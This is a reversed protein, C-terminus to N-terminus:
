VSSHFVERQRAPSLAVASSIERPLELLEEDEFIEETFEWKTPSAFLLKLTAALEDRCLNVLRSILDRLGNGRERPQAFFRLGDVIITLVVNRGLSVVLSEFMSFISEMNGPKLRDYCLRLVAPDLIRHGRDILQLLLSMALEEPSGNDDEQWDRHQSCFFALPIFFTSVDDKVHTARHHQLLQHFVKALFLSTESDPRPEARGNLILLSPEDVTLWARLRSSSQLVALRSPDLSLRRARDAKSNLSACDNEVLKEDYLFHALIHAPDVDSLTKQPQNNLNGIARDQLAGFINNLLPSINELVDVRSLKEEITGLRKDISAQASAHTYMAWYQLQVTQQGDDRALKSLRTEFSQSAMKLEAQYERLKETFGMPDAFIKVGTIWSNKLFWHLIHNLLNFAAVYLAAARRHIDEDQDHSEVNAALDKLQTPLDELITYVERRYMGTMRLGLFVAKLSGCLVSTFGFSDNPILTAATQGVGANRCLGRFVRRLKGLSGSMDKDKVALKELGTCADQVSQEVDTWNQCTSVDLMPQKAKKRYKNATALLRDRADLAVKYIDDYQIIRDVTDSEPVWRKRVGDFAIGSGPTALLAPHLQGALSTTMYEAVEYDAM